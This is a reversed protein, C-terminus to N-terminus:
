LRNTRIRELTQSQHHSLDLEKASKKQLIIRLENEVRALLLHLSGDNKLRIDNLRAELDQIELLFYRRPKHIDISNISLAVCKDDLDLLVRRTKRGDLLQQLM